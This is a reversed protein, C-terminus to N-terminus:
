QVWGFCLRPSYQVWGFVCSHVKSLGVLFVVTSRVSGLWFCGHVKSLGVM